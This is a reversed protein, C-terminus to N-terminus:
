RDCAVGQSPGQGPKRNALIGLTKVDGRRIGRKRAFLAGSGTDEAAPTLTALERSPAELFVDDEVVSSTNSPSRSVAPRSAGCRASRISGRPSESGNRTSDSEYGSEDARVLLLNNLFVRLDDVSLQGRGASATSAAQVQAATVPGGM